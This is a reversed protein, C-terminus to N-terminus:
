DCHINDSEGGSCGPTERYCCLSPYMTQAINVQQDCSDPDPFEIGCTCSTIYKAGAVFSGDLDKFASGILYIGSNAAISQMLLKGGQFLFQRRALTVDENQSM